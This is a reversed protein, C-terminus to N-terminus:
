APQVVGKQHILRYKRPTMGYQARFLRHFHSMNSIGCDEAIEALGDNTGALQRAAHTMRIRNVYDSPTEGLVKQVTRSVHAHAKGSARALGAAGDRFVEPARAATCARVLWDPADDPLDPNEAELEALLGLLFAEIHLATRPARELQVARHSLTSLQRIDRHTSYTGPAWFYRRGFDHWELRDIIDQSVVINVLHSEEGVGQIAHATGPPVFVLDGEVLMERREGVYHRARGNHLWFVEHLNHRHLAKPRARDLVARTFHYAQDPGLVDRNELTLIKM